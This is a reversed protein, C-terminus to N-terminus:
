GDWRLCSATPASGELPSGEAGLCAPRGLVPRKIDYCLPAVSAPSLPISLPQRSGSDEAPLAGTRLGSGPGQEGRCSDRRAGGCSQEGSAHSRPAPAPGPHALPHLVRTSGPRTVRILRTCAAVGVAAFQVDEGCKSNKNGVGTERLFLGLMRLPPKAGRQGPRLPIGVRSPASEASDRM